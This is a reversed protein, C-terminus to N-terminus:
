SIGDTESRPSHYQTTKFHSVSPFFFGTQVSLVTFFELSLFGLAIVPKVFERWRVMDQTPQICNMVEYKSVSGLGEQPAM